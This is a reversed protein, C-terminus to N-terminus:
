RNPRRSEELADILRIEQRKLMAVEDETQKRSSITRDRIRFTYNDVTLDLWWVTYYNGNSWLGTSFHLRDGASLTGTKAIRNFKAKTEDSIEPAHSWRRIAGIVEDATIPVQSKGLRHRKSIQNLQAAAEDIAMSNKATVSGSAADSEHLLLSDDLQATVVSCILPLVVALLISTLKM